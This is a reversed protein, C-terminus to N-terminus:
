EEVYWNSEGRPCEEKMLALCRRISERGDGYSETVHGCRNCTLEVGDVLRGDDNKLEVYEVKCIVSGSSTRSSLRTPAVGQGSDDDLFKIRSVMFVRKANKKHCYAEVYVDVEGAKSFVKQPTIWREDVGGPKSYRIHIKEKERASKLLRNIRPNSSDSIIRKGKNEWSELSM